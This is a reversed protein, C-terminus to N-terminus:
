DKEAEAQEQGLLEQIADKAAIHALPHAQRLRDWAARVDGQGKRGAEAATVQEGGFSVAVITAKALDRMAGARAQEKNAAGEFAEGEGLTPRRFVAQWPPSPAPADKPAWRKPEPTKATVLRVDGFTVDLTQMQEDTFQAIPKVAM